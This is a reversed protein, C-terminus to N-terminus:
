GLAEDHHTSTVGNAMVIATAAAPIALTGRPPLPAIKTMTPSLSRRRPAVDSDGDNPGHGEVYSTENTTTELNGVM